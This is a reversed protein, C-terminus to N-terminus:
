GGFRGGDDAQGAAASIAQGDSPRGTWVSEQTMMVAGLRGGPARKIHKPDCYSVATKTAGRERSYFAALDACFQMDGDGAVRGSPLKLLVHAGPVGRAHFWVDGVKALGHSVTENGRNHRGVFVDLGSPTTFRRVGSSSAGSPSAAGAKAKAKTASASRQKQRQQQQGSEAGAEPKVVRADLLEAHIDALLRAEDEDRSGDPADLALSLLQSETEELWALEVSAAELMPGCQAAGRALKKAKTHLKQANALPSLARDLPLEVTQGSAWDTIRAVESGAPVLHLQSLLLDANLRLGEAQQSGTLAATFHAIKGRERKAAARVASLLADRRARLGSTAAFRAHRAHLAAGIPATFYGGAATDAVDSAAPVGWRGPRLEAADCGLLAAQWQAAAQAVSAWQADSLQDPPVGHPPVGAEACLALAVGPSAGALCRVMAAALGTGQHQKASAAAAVAADRWPLSALGGRALPPPSYVDGTALTRQRTHHRGTQYGCATIVNDPLTMLYVNAQAGLAELVVAHSPAEGPRPAFTLRVLREGPQPMDCGVLAADRLQAQMVAGVSLPTAVDGRAGAHPPPGVCLRGGVPHWCVWLCAKGPPLPTRLFLVLTAGDLQLVSTLKGPVCAAAVEAASACLQTADVGTPQAAPSPAAVPAPVAVASLRAHHRRLRPGWAHRALLGRWTALAM